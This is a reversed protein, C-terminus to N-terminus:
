SIPMMENRSRDVADRLQDNDMERISVSRREDIDRQRRDEAERAEAMEERSMGVGYHIRGLPTLSGDLNQYRRKDWEQGKIGHHEIDNKADPNVALNCYRDKFELVNM